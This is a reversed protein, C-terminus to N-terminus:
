QTWNCCDPLCLESKWVLKYVNPRLLAPTPLPMLKLFFYVISLYKLVMRWCRGFLLIKQLSIKLYELIRSGNIKQENNM